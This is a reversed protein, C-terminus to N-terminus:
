VFEKSLNFNGDVMVLDAPRIDLNITQVNYSSNCTSLKWSVLHGVPVWEGCLTVPSGAIGRTMTVPLTIEASPISQSWTDNFLKWSLECRDNWKMLCKVPFLNDMYCEHSCISILFSSYQQKCYVPSHVCVISHFTWSPTTVVAMVAVTCVVYGYHYHQVPQETVPLCM